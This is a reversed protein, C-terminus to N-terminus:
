ATTQTLIANIVLKDDVIVSKPATFDAIGYLVGGSAATNSKTTTTAANDTSFVLGAGVITVSGTITFEAKSLTNSVSNGAVVGHVWERRTTATYETAEEWVGGSGNNAYTDTAAASAGKNLVVYAATPVGVLGCVFNLLTTLGENTVLNNVCERWKLEGSPSYCSVEYRFSPCARALM